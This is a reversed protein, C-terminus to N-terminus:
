QEHRKDQQQKIWEALEKKNKIKQHTQKAM